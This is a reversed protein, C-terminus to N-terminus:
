SISASNSCFTMGTDVPMSRFLREIAELGGASAGIVVVHTPKKLNSGKIKMENKHM